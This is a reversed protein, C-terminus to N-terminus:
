LGLRADADAVVRVRRARDIGDIRATLEPDDALATGIGIMVADHRARLLHAARRSRETTIWRSEGNKLAIKGDLTTALKLTVLPRGREIRSIFGANMARAEKALVGVVVEIGAARMMAHGKGSVRSDP